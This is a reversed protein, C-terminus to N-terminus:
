KDGTDEDVREEMQRWNNPRFGRPVPPPEEVHTWTEGHIAKDIAVHSVNYIMALTRISWGQKFLTRAIGVKKEDLKANSRNSGKGRNM